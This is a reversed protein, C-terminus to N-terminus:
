VGWLVLLLDPLLLLLQILQHSLKSIAHTLQVSPHVVLLHVIPLNPLLWVSGVSRLYDEESITAHEMCGTLMVVVVVHLLWVESVQM